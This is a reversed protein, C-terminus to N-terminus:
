RSVPQIKLAQMVHEIRNILTIRESGAFLLGTLRNDHSVVASGSDGDMSMPGAILQDTFWASRNRGYHVWASVDTQKIIGTTVGTTRGCKRIEMGLTAPQIGNITGIGHINTSVMEPRVPLALAADIRNVPPEPVADPLITAPLHVLRRMRSTLSAAAAPLSLFGAEAFRIPVFFSLQALQDGPMRGGDAPAPQLIPDGPKARNTNALIHNNSLLYIVGDREALCGLTGASVRPHALSVGGHAPRHRVTLHQLGTVALSFPSRLAPHHWPTSIGYARILDTEVVDTPIGGLSEPIRIRRSLNRLSRKKRVSCVISLDNTILGQVTKYGLGVAEVRHRNIINWRSYDLQRRIAEAHTM